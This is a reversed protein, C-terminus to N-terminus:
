SRPDGSRSGATKVLRAILWIPFVIVAGLLFYQLAWEIADFGMEYIRVVLRRVSDLLQFADLNLAALVIGVVLSIIALKLLVILPNGGFFRDM